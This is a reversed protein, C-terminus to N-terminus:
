ERGTLQWADEDPEDDDDPLTSQFKAVPDDYREDSYDDFDPASDQLPEIVDTIM